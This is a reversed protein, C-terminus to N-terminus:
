FQISVVKSVSLLDYIKETKCIRMTAKAKGKESTFVFSVFCFLFLELM